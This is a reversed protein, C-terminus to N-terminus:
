AQVSAAPLAARGSSVPTLCSPCRWQGYHTGWGAARLRRPIFRAYMVHDLWMIKSCLECMVRYDKDYRTRTVVKVYQGRM